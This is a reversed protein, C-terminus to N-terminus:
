DDRISCYLVYCDLTYKLQVNFLGECYVCIVISALCRVHLLGDIVYIVVSARSIELVWFGRVVCCSRVTSALASDGKKRESDRLAVMFDFGPVSSYSRLLSPFFSVDKGVCADEFWAFCKLSSEVYRTPYNRAITRSRKSLKCRSAGAHSGIGVLCGIFM